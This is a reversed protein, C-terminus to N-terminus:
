QDRAAIATLTPTRHSQNGAIRPHDLRGQVQREAGFRAVEGRIDM